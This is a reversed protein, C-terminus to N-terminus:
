EDIPDSSDDTSRRQKLRRLLHVVDLRLTDVDRRVGELREELRGLETSGEAVSERLANVTGTLSEFDRRLDQRLSLRDAVAAAHNADAAARNDAVRQALNKLGERVVVASTLIAALGLLLPWSRLLEDM